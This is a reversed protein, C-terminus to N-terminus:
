VGIPLFPDAFYVERDVSCDRATERKVSNVGFVSFSALDAAM